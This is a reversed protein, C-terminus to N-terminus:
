VDGALSASHLLREPLFPCIEHVNPPRRGHGNRRMLFGPALYSFGLLGLYHPLREDLYDQMFIVVLCVSNAVRKLAQDLLVLGLGYGRRDPSVFLDSIFFIPMGRLIDTLELVSGDPPYGLTIRRELEEQSAQTGYPHFLEENKLISPMLDLNRCSVANVSELGFRQCFFLLVPDKSAALAASSVERDIHYCTIWGVEDEPIELLGDEGELVIGLTSDDDNCRPVSECSSKVLTGSWLILDTHSDLCEHRWVVELEEDENVTGPKPHYLVIYAPMNSDHESKQSLYSSVSSSVYSPANSKTDQIKQKESTRKSNKRPEEVGLCHYFGACIGSTQPMKVGAHQRRLFERGKKHLKEPFDLYQEWTSKDDDDNNVGEMSPITGTSMNHISGLSLKVSSTTLWAVQSVPNAATQPNLFKDVAEAFDKFRIPGLSAALQPLTM